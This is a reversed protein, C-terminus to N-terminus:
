RLEPEPVAAPRLTRGSLFSFRAVRHALRVFPTLSDSGIFHLKQAELAARLRNWGATEAASMDEVAVNRFRPARPRRLVNTETAPATPEAQAKPELQAVFDWWGGTPRRTTLARFVDFAQAPFGIQMALMLLVAQYDGGQGEAGEFRNLEPRDTITAKILRYVNVFRTTARATPVMEDLQEIFQKEWPRIDLNPPTLNIAPRPARPGSTSQKTTKPTVQRDASGPSPINTRTPPSLNSPPTTPSTVDSGIATDPKNPAAAALPVVSAPLANQAPPVPALVVSANDPLDANSQMDRPKVDGAGAGAEAAGSINTAAEDPKILAQVMKTYGTADMPRLTFPIQFIKELYNQPTTQWHTQREGPARGSSDAVDAFASYEEELAHLLWRSDVGVVVVFLPFALLLHVAQLVEVVRKTSCRDLDDIYLIIRDVRPLNPKRDEARSEVLLESLAEFDQRITAVIGLEKRYETRAKRQQLFEFLRRGTATEESDKQAKAVREEAIRVTERAATEAQTAQDLEKQLRATQERYRENQVAGIKDRAAELETVGKLLLELKPKLWAVYQGVLGLLAGLTAGVRKAVGLFEGSLLWGLLAPVAILALLGALVAVKSSLGPGGISNWLKRVRQGLTRMKDIQQNVEAFTAPTQDLHLLKAASELRAKVGADAMAAGLLDAPTLTELTDKKAAVAAANAQLKARAEGAEKMAARERLKAEALQERASKVNRFIQERADRKSKQDRDSSQTVLEDFIHTVLNAWLSTDIYHWANFTIQVVDSCFATPKGEAEARRSAEELQRIRERMEEMFFSKGTGWDGFLGIALPPEIHRAAVVACLANVEETIGLCDERRETPPVSDAGFGAIPMFLPPAAAPEPAALKSAPPAPRVQLIEAWAEPKDGMETLPAVLQYLEQRLDAIKFGLNELLVQAGLPKEPRGADVTLLAALLHRVGVDPHTSAHASYQQATRLVIQARPSFRQPHPMEGYDQPDQEIGYPQLKLFGVLGGETPRDRSLMAFFKAATDGVDTRQGHLLLGALLFPTIIGESPRHSLDFYRAALAVAQGASLSLVPLSFEPAPPASTKAPSEWPTKAQTKEPAQEPKKAPANPTGRRTTKGASGEVEPQVNPPSTAPNSLLREADLTWLRVVTDQDGLTALFPEHPHFALGSSFKEATPEPIETVVEWPDTRWLKVTGDRSKSALLRGDVSYSVSSVWTSHAPIERLLQGAESDWLRLNPDEHGSVLLRGDPSPALCNVRAQAQVTWLLSVSDPNWLRITEDNSGSFLRGDKLWKLSSVLGSHGGLGAIKRGDRVNTLLIQNDLGGSALRQSAGDWDLSYVWGRHENITAQERWSEVAWIKITSDHSGSALWRGDPSWAVVYVTQTHGELTAVCEGTLADWIRITKDDSPTALRRGDPAWALRRIAGRHGALTRALRM